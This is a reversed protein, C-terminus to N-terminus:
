VNNVKKLYWEGRKCNVLGKLEKEIYGKCESCFNSKEQGNYGNYQIDDFTNLLKVFKDLNITMSGMLANKFIEGLKKESRIKSYDVKNIEALDFIGALIHCCDFSRRKVKKGLWHSYEIVRKAEVRVM